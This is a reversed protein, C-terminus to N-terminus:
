RLVLVQYKIIEKDTGDRRVCSSNYGLNIVPWTIKLIKM